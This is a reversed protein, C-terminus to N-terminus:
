FIESVSEMKKYPYTNDYVEKFIKTIEEADEKYCVKFVSDGKRERCSDEFDHGKELDIEKLIPYKNFVDELTIIEEKSRPVANTFMM